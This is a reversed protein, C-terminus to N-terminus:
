ELVPWSPGSSSYIYIEVRQQVKTSSPPPHNTGCGLWKLGGGSLGLVWQTPPQTPRDPHTCFSKGRWSEIRPSDLGHHTAIGVISDWGM